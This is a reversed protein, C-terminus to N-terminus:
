WSVVKDYKLSLEVFDVYTILQINSDGEILVARAEADEKLVYVSTLNSFKGILAKDMVGYVADQSLLLGDTPKIRQLCHQLALHNFPSSDIKHLIM